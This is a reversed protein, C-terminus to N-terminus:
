VYGAIWRVFMFANVLSLFAVLTLYYRGRWFSFRRDTLALVGAIVTCSQSVAMWAVGLGSQLPFYAFLYLIYNALVFADGFMSLWLAWHLRPHQKLQFHRIEVWAIVLRLLFCLGLLLSNLYVFPQSFRSSVAFLATFLSVACVTLYLLPRIPPKKSEM